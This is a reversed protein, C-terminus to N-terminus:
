KTKLTQFQGFNILIAFATYSNPSYATYSIVLWSHTTLRNNKNDAAKRSCRATDRCCSLKNTIEHTLFRATRAVSLQTLVLMERYIVVASTGTIHLALLSDPQEASDTVLVPSYRHWIQGSRFRESQMTAHAIDKLRSAIHVLPRSCINLLSMVCIKGSLRMDRTPRCTTLCSDNLNVSRKFALNNTMAM